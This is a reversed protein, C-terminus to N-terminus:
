QDLEVTDGIHVDELAFVIMGTSTTPTADLVVIEGVARRPLDAVHINPGKTRTFMGGEVSPPRKQTDETNSAKFSLSDVPDKLDETYNRVAKFYDGIKIGQNTGVNMYIKAGTGLETDFDRALVIRGSAKGNPPAFRDFRVPPHFTIPPKEEFPVAIDGPVLPECSFEVQAIASKSRTDTVRVRGIEAYAEGMSKLIRRQGAFIEYENPDRLERLITYKQGVQYGGGALYIMEQNTFKTTNPTQLGGAIFKSNPLPKGVFGACYIDAHTPTNIRVVPFSTSTEQPAAQDGAAPDTQQAVAASALALMLLAWVKKMNGGFNSGSEPAAKLAVQL